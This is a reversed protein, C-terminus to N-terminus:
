MRSSSAASRALHLSIGRANPLADTRHPMRNCVSEIMDTSPSASVGRRNVLNLLLKHGVGAPWSEVECARDANGHM